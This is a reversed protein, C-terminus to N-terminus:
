TSENVMKNVDIKDDKNAESAPIWQGNKKVFGGILEYIYDVVDDTNIGGTTFYAKNAQIDAMIQPIADVAGAWGGGERWAKDIMGKYTSLADATNLNRIDAASLGSGGGGGSRALAAEKYQREWTKQGTAPDIGTLGAEQVRRTLADLLAQRRLAIIDKRGLGEYGTIPSEFGATTQFGKNPDSGWNQMPLDTPLGGAAYFNSRVANAGENAAARAEDTAAARYQNGFQQLAQVVPNIRQEQQFQAINSAAQKARDFSSPQPQLSEAKLRDILNEFM